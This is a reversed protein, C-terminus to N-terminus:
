RGAVAGTIAEGLAALAVIEATGVADLAAQPMGYIVASERDQVFARGGAAHVARLGNAGDQGMGTLVVGVLQSGFVKAASSFLPDASPRVGWVPPGDGLRIAAFESSREVTMHRDGPAVYVHDALVPDGDAAERVKLTSLLDLRQAFSRTFDRPMHQCILVAAGLGRPLSPVIDTFARPGGTSAAMVVAKTAGQLVPNPGSKTAGVRPRAIVRLSGMTASAAAELACRLQNQVLVLDLSIPGSPKRVFDVAGLELARITMDSSRDSGAASLMVVPRPTESMIYGLAHLGDLEPMEIDLTVIQPDLEHIMRIAELGDRAAGVVDFQGFSGIMETILRRMFASDDVVLVTTRAPATM